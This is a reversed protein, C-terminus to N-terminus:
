WRSDKYFSLMNMSSYFNFYNDMPTIHSSYWNDVDSMKLNVHSTFNSYYNSYNKKLLEQYQDSFIWSSKRIGRAQEIFSTIL